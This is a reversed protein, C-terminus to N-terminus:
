RRSYHYGPDEIKTRPNGQTLAQKEMEKETTTVVDFLEVISLLADLIREVQDLFDDIRNMLVTVPGVDDTTGTQAFDAPGSKMENIADLITQYKEQITEKLRDIRFQELIEEADRLIIVLSSLKNGGVRIEDLDRGEIFTDWDEKARTWLNFLNTWHKDANAAASAAQKGFQAIKKFEDTLEQKYLDWWSLDAM